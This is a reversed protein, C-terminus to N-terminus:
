VGLEEPDFGLSELVDGQSRHVGGNSEGSCFTCEKLDHSYVGPDVRRVDCNQVYRCDDETHYTDPQSDTCKRVWVKEDDSM